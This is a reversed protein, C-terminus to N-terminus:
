LPGASGGVEGTGQLRRSVRMRETLAFGFAKEDSQTQQM